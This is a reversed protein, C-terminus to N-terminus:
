ATPRPPVRRKVGSRSQPVALCDDFAAWGEGFALARMNTIEGRIELLVGDLISSASVIPM